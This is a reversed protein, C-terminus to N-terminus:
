TWRRRAERASSEAYTAQWVAKSQRTSAESVDRKDWAGKGDLHRLSEGDSIGAGRWQSELYPEEVCM